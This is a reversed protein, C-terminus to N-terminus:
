RPQVFAPPTNVLKGKPYKPDKTATIRLNLRQPHTISDISDVVATVKRGSPTIYWCKRGVASDPPTPAKRVQHM